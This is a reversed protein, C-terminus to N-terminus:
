LANLQNLVKSIEYVGELSYYVQEKFNSNNLANELNTLDM